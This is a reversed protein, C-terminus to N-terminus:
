SVLENYLNYYSEEFNEDKEITDTKKDGLDQILKKFSETNEEKANIVADAYQMGLKVFGDYDATKLPDLMEDDIDLMKVKEILDD